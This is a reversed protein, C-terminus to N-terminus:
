ISSTCYFKHITESIFTVDSESLLPFIPLSLCSRSVLESVPYEGDKFGYIARWMCSSYDEAEGCGDSCVVGM